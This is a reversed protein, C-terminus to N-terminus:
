KSNKEGLFEEYSYDFLIFDNKYRKYLKQVLSPELRRFIESVKEIDTKKKVDPEGHTSHFNKSPFPGIRSPADISAMIFESESNIEEIKSIINYQVKCPACEDWYSAWHMDGTTKQKAVYELFARLDVKSTESKLFYPQKEYKKISSIYKSWHSKSLQAEYDVIEAHHHFKDKWCSYLRTFPHRVAIFRDSWKNFDITNIDKSRYKSTFQFRPLKEYFKLHLHGDQFPGEEAITTNAHISNFVKKWSTSGAKPIFCMVTSSKDLYNIFTDRFSSIGKTTETLGKEECQERLFMKRKHFRRAIRYFQQSAEDKLSQNEVTEPENRHFNSVPQILEVSEMQKQQESVTNSIFNNIQCKRSDSNVQLLQSNSSLFSAIYILMALVSLYICTTVTKNGNESEGIIAM